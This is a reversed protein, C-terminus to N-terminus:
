RLVGMHVEDLTSRVPHAEFHEAARRLEVLADLAERLAEEAANTRGAVWLPSESVLGIFTGGGAGQFPDVLRGLATSARTLGGLVESIWANRATARDRGILARDDYWRPGEQPATMGTRRNEDIRTDQKPMEDAIAAVVRELNELRARLDRLEASRGRARVV